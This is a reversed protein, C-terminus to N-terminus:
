MSHRASHRMRAQPSPYLVSERGGMRDANEALTRVYGPDRRAAFADARLETWRALPVSAVYFPFLIVGFFPARTIVPALWRAVGDTWPEWFLDGLVHHAVEHAIIPGLDKRAVEVGLILGYSRGHRVAGATWGDCAGVWRPAPVGLRKCTRAVLDNVDPAAQFHRPVRRCLWLMLLFFLTATVVGVALQGSLWWPLALVVLLNCALSAM